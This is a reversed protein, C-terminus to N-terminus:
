QGEHLWLFAKHALEAADRLRLKAKINSCHSDITKPSLGLDEAIKRTKCGQGLMEFVEIERQSLAAEIQNKSSNPLRKGFRDPSKKGISLMQLLSVFEPVSVDKSIVSHAGIRKARRLSQPSNPEVLAVIHVGPLAAKIESFVLM